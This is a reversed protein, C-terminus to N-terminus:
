TSESLPPHQPHPTRIEFSACKLCSLISVYAVLDHGKPPSARYLAFLVFLFVFCFLELSFVSAVWWSLGFVDKM